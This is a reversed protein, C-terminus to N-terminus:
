LRAQRGVPGVEILKPREVRNASRRAWCNAGMIITREEVPYSDRVAEFGLKSYFQEATASSPVTLVEVGTERAVPEVEAMLQRGVGNGQVNPAVFVTRVVRGDLSATGIIQQESMAVFVTRKAMLDLVATPTFSREVREIVDQSYDKANTERLASLIVRSIGDADGPRAKRIRHKM